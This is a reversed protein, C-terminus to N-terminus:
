TKPGIAYFLLHNRLLNRSPTYPARRRCCWTPNKMNEPWYRLFPSPQPPSEDAVRVVHASVASIASSPHSIFSFLQEPKHQRLVRFSLRLLSALCRPHRFMDDISSTTLKLSTRIVRCTPVQLPPAPRLTYRPSSADSTCFLQAVVTDDIFPQPRQRQIWQLAM